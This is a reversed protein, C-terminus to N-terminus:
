SVKRYEEPMVSYHRRRSNQMLVTIASVNFVNPRFSLIFSKTCQRWKRNYIQDICLYGADESCFLTTTHWFDRLNFLWIHPRLKQAMRYRSLNTTSKVDADAFLCCWFRSLVALWQASSAGADDIALENRDFWFLVVFDCMLDEYCPVLCVTYLVLSIATNTLEYLTQSWNNLQCVNTNLSPIDCRVWSKM